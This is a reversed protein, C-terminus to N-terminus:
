EKATQSQILWSMLHHPGAQVLFDAEKILHMGAQRCEADMGASIAGSRSREYEGLYGVVVYDWHKNEEATGGLASPLIEMESRMAFLAPLTFKFNSKKFNIKEFHHPIPEPYVDNEVADVPGFKEGFLPFLRNLTQKPLRPRNPHTILNFWLRSIAIGWPWDGWKEQNSEMWQLVIDMHNKYVGLRAGANRLESVVASYDGRPIDPHCLWSTAAPSCVM